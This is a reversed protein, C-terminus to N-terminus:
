IATENNEATKVEYRKYSHLHRLFGQILRILDSNCLFIKDCLEKPILEQDLAIYLMSRVESASGNAINIFQIREKVNWRGFGEAINNM